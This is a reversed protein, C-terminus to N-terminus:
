WPNGVANGLSYASSFGRAVDDASKIIQVAVTALQVTAPNFACHLWFNALWFRGGYLHIGHSAKGLRGKGLANLQRGRYSVSLSYTGKGNTM